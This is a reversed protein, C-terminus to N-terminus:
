QQRRTEIAALVGDLREFGEAAGREMPSRLVLDRAQRSPFRWTTTLTTRGHAEHLEHTVLSEGPYWHDDFSETYVLRVPPAIERYRGSAAMGAGGPGRWVFRWAGGVRLDIECEVITWGHAGYWRVVLEPRTWADFVLRRPARFARTMAIETDSPTTVQVGPTGNM